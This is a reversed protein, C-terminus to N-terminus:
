GKGEVIQGKIVAHSHTSRYFLTGSPCGCLRIAEVRWSSISKGTRHANDKAFELIEAESLANVSEKQPICVVITAEEEGLYAHASIIKILQNDSM